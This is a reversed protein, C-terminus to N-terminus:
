CLADRFLFPCFFSLMQARNELHLRNMIEELHDKITRPSLFLRAGIEKYSLGDALLRMVEIQRPKLVGRISKENSDSVSKSSVADKPNGLRAFKNM